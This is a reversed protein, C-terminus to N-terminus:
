KECPTEFSYPVSEKTQTAYLIFFGINILPIIIISVEFAFPPKLRNAKVTLTVHEIKVTLRSLLPM